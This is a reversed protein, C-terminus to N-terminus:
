DDEGRKTLGVIVYSCLAFIWTVLAHTHSMHYEPTDWQGFASLFLVFMMGQVYHRNFKM